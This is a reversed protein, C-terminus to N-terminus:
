RPQPQQATGTRAAEEAAKRYRYDNAQQVVRQWDIITQSEADEYHGQPTAPRGDAAQAHSMLPSALVLALCAAKLLVKM